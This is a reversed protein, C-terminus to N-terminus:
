SLCGCRVLDDADPAAAVSASLNELEGRVADSLQTVTAQVQQVTVDRVRDVAAELTNVRDGFDAVADDLAGAMESLSIIDGTGSVDLALDAATGAARWGQRCDPARLLWSWDRDPQWCLGAYMRLPAQAIAAARGPM